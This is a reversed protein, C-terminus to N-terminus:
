YIEMQTICINDPANLKEPDGRREPQLIIEFYEKLIIDLFVKEQKLLIFMDKQIFFVVKGNIIELVM